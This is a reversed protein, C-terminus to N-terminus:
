LADVLAQVGELYQEEEDTLQGKGGSYETSQGQKHYIAVFQRM